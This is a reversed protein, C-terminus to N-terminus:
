DKIVIKKNNHQVFSLYKYNSFLYNFQGKPLVKKCAPLLIKDVFKQQLASPVFAMGKHEKNLYQQVYLKAFFIYTQNKNIEM